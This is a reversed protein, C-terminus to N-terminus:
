RKPQYQDFYRGALSQAENLDKHTLLNVILDRAEPAKLDGNAAAVSFWVYAQKFDQTVGKGKSYM